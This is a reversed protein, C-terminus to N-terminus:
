QGKSSCMYWPKSYKLLFEDYFGEFPYGYKAILTADIDLVSMGQMFTMIGVNVGFSIM